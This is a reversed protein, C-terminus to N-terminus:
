PEPSFDGDSYDKLKLWVHWECGEPDGSYKKGNHVFDAKGHLFSATVTGDAHVHHLGIGCYKQCNCRIVPKRPKDDSGVVSIWCPGPSDGKESDFTGKPIETLV